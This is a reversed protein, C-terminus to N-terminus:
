KIAEGYLAWTNIRNIKVNVINGILERGGTFNVVKGGDTRGMLVDPNNKSEGETLVTQVTGVYMENKRRSIENQVELMKDFNTHKESDSLCDEMKEAPTGVRKSFIFSYITDYMAERLVDLTEEFDANTETPFGVIIDTTIVINPMALRAKKVIEMYSERTYKRNMAKLVANSGSQIPLHLQKCIKPESAMVEILEDSLDKPHSTVFRVREIGKVGCAMKLLQPFTIGDDLDNSYSNVNQGLLVIEKYGKKAVDHIENMINKVDRSRERGRVYPVVCYTCFNNCGYMIPIKAIPPKEREYSIEEFITGEDPKVDIVKKHNMVECLLKPFRYLAHTGFVLDVQHYKQKITKAIHEQQMMCGCVAVIMDPNELKKNKLAGINGFVKLEANERVACTNYLVFDASMADSSFEFGMESLMGKIKESDSSNQQCGYTEVFALPKQPKLANIDRITKIFEKQQAMEEHSIQRSM